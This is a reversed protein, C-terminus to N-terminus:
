NKLKRLVRKVQGTGIIVTENLLPKRRPTKKKIPKIKGISLLIM